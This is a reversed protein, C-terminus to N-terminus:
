LRGAKGNVWKGTSICFTAGNADQYETEKSYLFKIFKKGGSYYIRRSGHEMAFKERFGASEYAAEFVTKLNYDNLIKELMTM